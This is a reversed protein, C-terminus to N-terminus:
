LTGKPIDWSMKNLWKPPVHGTPPVCPSLLTPEVGLATDFGVQLGIIYNLFLSLNQLFNYSHTPHKLEAWSVMCM